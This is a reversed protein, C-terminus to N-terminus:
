GGAIEPQDRQKGENAEENISDETAFHGAGEDGRDRQDKRRDGGGDDGPQPGHHSGPISGFRDVGNALGPDGDGAKLDVEGEGDIVQREDHETDDGADAEEDMEVRGSVHRVFVTVPTEEGVEVKEHEEHGDQHQGAAEKQEEDAPLADTEGGVQEDAEVELLVGGGICAFLGEDDVADAVEAKKERHEQDNGVEAIEVEGVDEGGDRLMGFPVAAKEGGNGEQEDDSGGAFRGLNGKVDPQGVRHFAGRRDGGENVGGGHNRCADVHDGAAM